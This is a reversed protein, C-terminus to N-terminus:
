RDDLDGTSMIQEFAGLLDSPASLFDFHGGPLVDFRVDSGYHRWGALEEETVEPDHSWHLVTIGMGIPAPEVLGYRRSAGLDQRLVRLALELLAPQPEGGLTVVLKALEDLLEGDTYGLLRDHPCDHPAVQASVVLRATPLDLEALRRAVEFAPLAGACHGFLVFPRDLVPTLSDALCGALEEYTGFHPERIRNERAPLQLPCVEIQGIWRPWRNYMSGGVGSYPFCFVRGKAEESVLRLLWPNKSM